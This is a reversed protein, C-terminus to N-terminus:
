YLVSVFRPVVRMTRIVDHGMWPVHVANGFGHKDEYVLWESDLGGDRVDQLLCAARYEGIWEEIRDEQFQFDHGSYVHFSVSRERTSVMLSASGEGDRLVSIISTSNYASVNCKYVHRVHRIIGGHGWDAHVYLSSMVFGRLKPGGGRWM